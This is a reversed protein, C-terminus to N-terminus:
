ILDLTVIRYGSFADTVKREDCEDNKSAIENTGDAVVGNTCM